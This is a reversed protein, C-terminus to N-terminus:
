KAPQVIVTGAPRRSGGLWRRLALRAPEEFFYYSVTAVALTSITSALLLILPDMPPLYVFIGYLVPFHLLYISYSIAGLFHLPRSALIRATWSRGSMLGLILPAFMMLVIWGRILHLSTLAFLAITAAAVLDTHSRVQEAFWDRRLYSLYALWGAVFMATGRTIPSWYPFVTAAPPNGWTAVRPDFWQSGLYGSILAVVLMVSARVSWHIRAVRGSLLFLVPFVIVYCFAEASVSWAAVNWHVGNGVIPWANIMLIQRIIDPFLQGPPYITFGGSYLRVFVAGMIVFVAFYLPYIRAFRAILFRRASLTRRVGAGYAVCLIFSSLCFFLDVAQNSFQIINIVFFGHGNFHSLMVDCAALGRLGTLQAIEGLAASEGSREAIGAPVPGRDGIAAVDSM